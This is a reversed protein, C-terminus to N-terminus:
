INEVYRRVDAASRLRHVDVGELGDLFSLV